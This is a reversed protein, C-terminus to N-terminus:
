RRSKEAKIQTFSKKVNRRPPNPSFFRQDIQTFGKKVKFSCKFASKNTKEISLSIKVYFLATRHV